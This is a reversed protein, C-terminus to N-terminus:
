GRAGRRTARAAPTTRSPRTGLALGAIRATIERAHPASNSGPRALVEARVADFAIRQSAWHVRRAATAGPLFAYADHEHSLQVTDAAAVEAAFLPVAHVADRAPEYYVTLHELAWWRLPRLGTEELVERAAARWAVERREIGGTVPQWVGPLTRERSRRVLLFETRRGRRRFVYVEIQHSRVPPM